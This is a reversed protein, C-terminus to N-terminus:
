VKDNEASFHAVSFRTVRQARGPRRVTLVYPGVSVVTVAVYESRVGPLGTVIPRGRGPYRTRMRSSVRWGTGSPAVPSIQIPPIPTARPYTPRGFSVRRRNM